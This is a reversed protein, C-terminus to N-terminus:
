NTRKDATSQIYRQKAPTSAIKVFWDDGRIYHMKAASWHETGWMNMLMDGISKLNEKPNDSIDIFISICLWTYERRSKLM